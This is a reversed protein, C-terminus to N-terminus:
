SAAPGAPDAPQRSSDACASLLDLLPGFRPDLEALVAARRVEDVDTPRWASVPKEALTAVARAATNEPQLVISACGDGGTGYYTGAASAFLARALRNALPRQGPAIEYTEGDLYYVGGM